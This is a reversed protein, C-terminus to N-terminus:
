LCWFSFIRKTYGARIECQSWLKKKWIKPQRKWNRVYIYKLMFHTKYVIEASAFVDCVLRFNYDFSLLISSFLFPRYEWCWSGFNQRQLCNQVSVKITSWFSRPLSRPIVFEAYLYVHLVVACLLYVRITSAEYVVSLCIASSIKCHRTWKCITRNIPCLPAQSSLAGNM